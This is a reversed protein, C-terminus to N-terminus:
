FDAIDFQTNKKDVGKSATGDAHSASFTTIDGFSTALVYTNITNITANSGSVVIEFVRWTDGNGTFTPPTFTNILGTHDYLEVKAPSQVIGNGATALYRDTYNHVSFRYTGDYFGSITTTEPGEGSTDDVDLSIYQHPTKASFYMHFRGSSGDPGTLHSDLDAPTEGWTLVIRFNGTEPADVLTAVPMENEGAGLVIGTITRVFFGDAVVFCIYNGSVMNTLTFNGNADTTVTYDPNSYDTATLNRTFYLIANALGSGTQSNIITGTLNADGVQDVDDKKCSVMAIISICVIFVALKKIERM